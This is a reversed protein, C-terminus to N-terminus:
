KNKNVLWRKASEVSYFTEVEVSTKAVLLKYVNLLAHELTESAVLALQYSQGRQNVYRSVFLAHEQLDKVTAEPFSESFDYCANMNYQFRPHKILQILSDDLTERTVNGRFCLVVLKKKDDFSFHIYSCSEKNTQTKM